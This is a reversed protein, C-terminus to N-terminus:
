SETHALIPRFDHMYTTISGFSYYKCTSFMYHIHWIYIHSYILASCLACTHTYGIQSNLDISGFHIYPSHIGINLNNHCTNHAICLKRVFDRTPTCKYTTKLM